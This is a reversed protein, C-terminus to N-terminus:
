SINRSLSSYSDLDESSVNSSSDCGKKSAIARINKINKIELRLGSKKAIKYIMKNKNKLYKM